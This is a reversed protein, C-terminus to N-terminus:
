GLFGFTFRRSKEAWSATVPRPAAAEGSKMAPGAAACPVGASPRCNVFISGGTGGITGPLISTSSNKEYAHGCQLANSGATSAQALFSGASTAKWRTGTGNRIFKSFRIRM